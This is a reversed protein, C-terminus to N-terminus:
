SEFFDTALAWLMYESLELPRHVHIDHATDFFWRVNVRALDMQAPSVQDHQRLRHENDGHDAVAVLVPAQVKAYVEAPRHEWLGRLVKMHREKTLWPRVTGDPLTEFNALRMELTEEPWDSRFSRMRDEMQKRSTSILDPPQLDVSIQKWDSGQPRSQLDIFGGDVLVVGSVLDPYRAALDLVVNGGWSQGAVVPRDLGIVEILAKLDATVEDFDFGDDPKDSQGHGRQDVAVVPHGERNLRHAVM